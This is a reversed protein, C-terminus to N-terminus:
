SSIQKEAPRSGDTGSTRRSTSTRSRVSYGITSWQRRPASRVPRPATTANNNVVSVGNSQVMPVTSPDLVSVDTQGSIQANARAQKDLFPKYVVTSYPYTAAIALGLFSLLIAYRNLFLVLAFAALALVAAVVLAERPEIEKAALPRARTRQVHPDFNRDAYDNIACGASRM